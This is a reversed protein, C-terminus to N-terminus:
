KSSCATNELRLRPSFFIQFELLFVRLVCGHAQLPTEQGATQYRLAFWTPGGTRCSTGGASFRRRSQLNPAQALWTLELCIEGYKSEKSVEQLGELAPRFAPVGAYAQVDGHRLPRQPSSRLARVGLM